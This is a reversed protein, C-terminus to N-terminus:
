FLLGRAHRAQGQFNQQFDSVITQARTFERQSKLWLLKQGQPLASVMGNFGWNNRSCPRTHLSNFFSTM